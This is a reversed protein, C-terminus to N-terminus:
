RICIVTPMMVTESRALRPSYSLDRHVREGFLRAPFRNSRARRFRDDWVFELRQLVSNTGKFGLAATQNQGGASCPDSGAVNARFRNAAQHPGLKGSESFHHPRSEISIVGFAM